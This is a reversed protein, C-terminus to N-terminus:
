FGAVGSRIATLMDNLSEQPVSEVFPGVLWGVGFPITRSLSMSECEVIVGGDTEEFRWYSNLRWLFGSDDASTKEKEGPGPDSIESIKTAVSRSSVRGPSHDRYVVSHETNYRVTVVKKRVLRLYIKFNEGDRRVLKSKEVEAFYDAHRDYAQLWQKLTKLTINPVFISGVWHHILGGDLETKTPIKEVHVAGEKLLKRVRDRDKRPKFDLTLFDTGALLEHQIRNETSQVYTEWGRLTKDRLTAASAEQTAVLCVLSLAVLVRFYRVTMM